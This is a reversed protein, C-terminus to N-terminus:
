NPFLLLSRQLRDKTQVLNTVKALKQLLIQCEQHLLDIETLNICNHGNKNTFETPDIDAMMFSLLVIGKDKNVTCCILM